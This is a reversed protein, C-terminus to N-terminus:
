VAMTKKLRRIRAQISPINEAQLQALTFQLDPLLEPVQQSLEYLAQVSNVRVIRSGKRELAWQTLRHWCLGLEKKTLRLRPLLQALHWQLEKNAATQCQQLLQKKHKQLWAPQQASIKELVDAARMTVLRDPHFLFPFLEDFDAETKVAALLSASRGLGRLDGGSLQQLHIKSM